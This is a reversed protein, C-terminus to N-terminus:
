ICEWKSQSTDSEKEELVGEREKQWLPKGRTNGNGEVFVALRGL